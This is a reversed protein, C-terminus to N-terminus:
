PRRSASPVHLVEYTLSGPDTEPLMRTPLPEWSQVIFDEPRTRSNAAVTGCRELAQEVWAENGGATRDGDCIVGFRVGSTRLRSALTELLPQWGQVAWAMDAHVFVPAVGTKQRLLDDFTLIDDISQPGGPARASVPEIDGIKIDPFYRRLLAIKAAVKEAVEPVSYQCGIGGGKAAKILIHGFWVPEDMAVYNIEGGLAKVRKAVSDVATPNGYGEVGYGCTGPGGSELVGLEVAFAIHRRKLDDIVTKLEPDDAHLVFRTGVKFVALGSAAKEWPADPKFLDMYDAPETVHRAKQAEPDVGSLWIATSRGSNPRQAAVHAPAVVLCLTLAVMPGIAIRLARGALARSGASIVNLIM